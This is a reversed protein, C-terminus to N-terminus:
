SFESRAALLNKHAGIKEQEDGDVFVFYFDASEKHLFLKELDKSLDGNGYSVEPIVLPQKFM